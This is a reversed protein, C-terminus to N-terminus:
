LLHTSMSSTTHDDKKIEDEEEFVLDWGDKEEESDPELVTDHDDDYDDLGIIYEDDDGEAFLTADHTIPSWEDLFDCIHNVDWVEDVAPIKTDDIKSANLSTEILHRAIQHLMITDGEIQGLGRGSRIVVAGNKYFVIRM